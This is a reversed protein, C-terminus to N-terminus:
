TLYNVKSANSSLESAFGAVPREQLTKRLLHQESIGRSCYSRCLVFIGLLLLASLGVIGLTMFVVGAGSKKGGSKEEDLRGAKRCRSEENQNEPDTALCNMSAKVTRKDSETSLCHPLEGTLKNDSLDVFELKEGCKSHGSISGSLSNSALNLYGLFPLSFLSAPPSGTLSNSSLDLRRLGKLDGYQRPIEGSFSNNSLLIEALGKPMPPLASGFRNGRLDLMYLSKMPGLDPLEGSIGNGSLTLNALNEVRRLSTPFSGTLLNNKLSLVRLEALSGFWGPVSGNLFNDDMVLSQLKVMESIKAPVSGCLYNSSLDLSELSDLRHIKDHIPGWIGLSVLGLSRLTNLRALTTFFSDVSFGESLTEGPIAFGEFGKGLKVPKKDGVIRLETVVNDQCTLNLQPTPSLSCFDLGHDLWIELGKPFELHKKLQLLVQTQSSQLQHSGLFLFSLTFLFVLLVSTDLCGM